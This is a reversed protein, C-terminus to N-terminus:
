WLERGVPTGTTVESHRNEETIGALLADLSMKARVPRITILNNESLIEVPTDAEIGCEKAVNKPIRVALSNGWKQAKALM